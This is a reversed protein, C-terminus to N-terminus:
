SFLHRFEDVVAKYVGRKFPVIVDPLLDIDVWKWECFEAHKTHINIDSDDGFFRLVFWKQKQGRYKGKWLKPVLDVPLDYLHWSASEALIEAKTTGVEEELERLAAAALEEGEDVGGQPMQWAEATSDIRRGVFVKNDNNVLMMGVGLRYPLSKVDLLKVV